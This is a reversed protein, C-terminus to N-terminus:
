QQPAAPAANDSQDPFHCQQVWQGHIRV